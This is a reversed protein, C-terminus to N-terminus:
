RTTPSIKKHVHGDPGLEALMAAALDPRTTVNGSPFDEDLRYQSVVAGNILRGPRMITWDIDECTALFAEMRLMDEYLTRGVVYRLFPLIIRDQFFGRVQPLPEAGIVVLGASVVVLRRCHDSARMGAVIAKTAVSYLRIEHRSYATGLASLAADTDAIAPALPSGDMVDVHIVTLAEHQFPFEHPRRVAATVQHGAALAQHCLELGTPGNAGFIILKM